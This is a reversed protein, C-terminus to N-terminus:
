LTERLVEEISTRGETLALLGASRLSRMGARAAAARVEATSAAALVANRIEDNFRLVEFLGTRGRYGTHHCAECGKGFYFTAGALHAADAGLEALLAEEPQYASKCSECVKRVLRQAIVAEVTATIMFPEVGIDVLRTVASPADNTHLTSFVTHGTLSAEVAVAATEGDRIEGILIKDPDQRLVTRLIRAYTVGIEDNVPVQVIGDIDYEVPDEATIIKLDPTNTEQLMAYLTTTKGSGTPGTILVIGHPLQTLERLVEEDEIRLGLAALSLQVASRDLVRLVCSEGSIGPITAVRLDVPRGDISLEIRGDQPMRTEAIDLDAMVKIRAVLPVALHMPPSEVEYLAGDVRYRIRFRDDYLEFHVDSARDKIAQHLISNLLRVVPMSQAASQVDGAKSANAAQRIADALTAEEGYSSRVLERIKEGDGVKGRVDLGTTFRLDELVSTNLPDAIAVILTRGEVSLPLVGFTHATNGDVLALAERAPQIRSLDVTELGAQEALALAVDASGVAGLQILLQGILGGHKRQLALAEQIQSEKVLGRAKLIQGLPRRGGGPSPPVGHGPAPTM